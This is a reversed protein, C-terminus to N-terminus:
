FNESKLGSKWPVLQAMVCGKWWSPTKPGTNMRKYNSTTRNNVLCQRCGQEVPGRKILLHTRNSKRAWRFKRFREKTHSQSCCGPHNTQKQMKPVPFVEQLESTSPCCHFFLFFWGWFLGTGLVDNSQISPKSSLSKQQYGEVKREFIGFPTITWKTEWLQYTTKREMGKSM